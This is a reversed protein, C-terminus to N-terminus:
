SSSTPHDITDTPVSALLGQSAAASMVATPSIVRPGCRRLTLKAAEGPALEIRRDGDMALIGPGEFSLSHDVAISKSHRITLPEYLGPSLPAHILLDSARDPTGPAKLELWVGFEDDSGCPTVFGAVPSIGIGDPEARTVFLQKLNHATFPLLSGMEDNVLHVVDILAIDHHSGSQIDIIKCPRCRDSSIRGSSVLGAAAGAVSAESRFPFVNNTGTSLPLLNIDASSRAVIRSTGDGGLVVFTRAGQSLMIQLATESDADSHTPTLPILTVRDYEPLNEVAGRAIRFPDDILLVRTTGHALAGLVIRTVLLQKDHHNSLSARAAVRRVDRGSMPNVIIGLIAM